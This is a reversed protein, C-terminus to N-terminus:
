PNSQVPLAWCLDLALRGARRDQFLALHQDSTIKEDVDDISDVKEAGSRFGSLGGVLVAAAMRLPTADQCYDWAYYMYEPDINSIGQAIAVIEDWRENISSCTVTENHFHVMLRGLQEQQKADLGDFLDEVKWGPEPPIVVEVLHKTPREGIPERFSIQPPKRRAYLWQGGLATATSAMGGLVISDYLSRDLGFRAGCGISIGAVLTTLVILAIAGNSRRVEPPCPIIGDVSSM